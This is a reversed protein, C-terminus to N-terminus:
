PSGSPLRIVFTAGTGEGDSIAEITGGHATVLQRVIALGLGAGGTARSRSRDARYFRDFVHPLHERAIGVGTDAVELRVGDGDGRARLDIRGDAPTHRQANHLLNRLIQDLRHPDAEVLPLPDQVEVHISPGSDKSSSAAARRLADGMTVPERRLELGGAEALALDQLDAILRQLLLTEEYLADLNARTLPALGDQMGEITCRLNTVPSRLEHAVDSVMQRRLRENEALRAAMANFAGALEGVEDDGVAAPEVRVDREGRAMRQVATTLAGVPKLVHRSLIFLVLLALLGTASTTVIWGPLTVHTQRLETNSGALPLQYLRGLLTGDAARIDQPRIGQVEIASVQGNSSAELSLTGDATADIIRATALTANSATVVRQSDSAILVVARQHTREWAELATTVASPGADRLSAAVTSSLEDFPLPAPVAKIERVEVLTARRSLLASVGISAALVSAAAVFVRTRLRIRM